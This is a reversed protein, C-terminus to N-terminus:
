RRDQILYDSVPPGPTIKIPNKSGEPKGGSWSAFGSKVLNWLSADLIQRRRILVQEKQLGSDGLERLVADIDELALGLEGVQLLSWSRNFRAALNQPEIDLSRNFDLIAEHHNDIHARVSGRNNYGEANERISLSRNLDREANKYDNLTTRVLARNFLIKADNPDLRLARNLDQLAEDLRELFGLAAARNNLVASFRPYLELATDFERVADDYARKAVLENGKLAHLIAERPIEISTTPVPSIEPAAAGALVM